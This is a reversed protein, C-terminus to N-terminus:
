KFPSGLGIVARGRSSNLQYPSVKEQISFIYEEVLQAEKDTLTIGSNILENLNSPFKM